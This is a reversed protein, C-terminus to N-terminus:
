NQILSQLDSTNVSHKETLPSPTKALGLNNELNQIFFELKGISKQFTTLLQKGQM